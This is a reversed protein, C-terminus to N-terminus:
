YEKITIKKGNSILFGEDKLNKIERMMASRDISLYDALETYTFPLYFSKKGKKKALLNLYTLVKDRISRKSLVEVRENLDIIKQSLLNFVNDILRIHCSCNKKCRNMLSSYNLLLIECDTTAVVSVENDLYSFTKGFISNTELSEIITRNGNYDYRILSANGSLVVGMINSNTVNSLITSDRKYSMIKGDFCKIMKFIDFSEIEQFLSLEEM